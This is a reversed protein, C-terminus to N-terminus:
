EIDQREEDPGLYLRRRKIGRRLYNWSKIALALRADRGFKRSSNIALKERLQYMVDERTLNEGEGLKDFFWECLAKDRLSFEYHLAGVVSPWLREKARSGCAFAASRRIEPESELLSWLEDDPFGANTLVGKRICMVIRLTGALLAYHTEGSAALNDGMNRKKGVDMTRFSEKPLGRVVMTEFPVGSDVCASLRHQGNNLNGSSDFCIPQGNFMWEGNRMSQAYRAVITKSIPRNGANRQLWAEAIKPTVTVREWSVGCKQSIVDLNRELDPM